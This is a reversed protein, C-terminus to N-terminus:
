TTRGDMTKNGFSVNGSEVVVVWDEVKLDLILTKLRDTVNQKSVWVSQQLQKFGWKKLNRRFLNRIIRKQEPIDFIIIRWKGDWDEERFFEQGLSEKGLDTLKFILEQSNITDEQILGRERLRKITQSITSKKIPSGWGGYYMYKAPNMRLDQIRIFGDVSKELALLIFYSLSEKKNVKM